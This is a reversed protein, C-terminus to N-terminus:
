DVNLPIGLEDSVIKVHETTIIVTCHPNYNKLLYEAIPEALAKLEEM